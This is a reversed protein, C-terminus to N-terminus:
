NIQSYEVFIKLEHPSFNQLCSRIQLREWFKLANKKLDSNEFDILFIEGFRSCWDVLFRLGRLYILLTIISFILNRNKLGSLPICKKKRIRWKAFILFWRVNTYFRLIGFAVKALFWGTHMFSQVGFHISSHIFYTPIWPEYLLFRLLLYTESVM